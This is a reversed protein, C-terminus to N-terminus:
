SGSSAATSTVQIDAGSGGNASPIGPDPALTASYRQWTSPPGHDETPVVWILSNEIGPAASPDVIVASIVVVSRTPFWPVGTTRVVVAASAVPDMSGPSGEPSLRSPMPKEVATLDDLWLRTVAEDKVHADHRRARLKPTPTPGPPRRWRMGRLLVGAAGRASTRHDPASRTGTGTRRGAGDALGLDRQRLHRRARADRVNAAIVGAVGSRRDVEAAEVPLEFAAEGAPLVTFYGGMREDPPRRERPVRAVEGPNWYLRKLLRDIPV